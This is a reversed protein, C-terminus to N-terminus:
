LINQLTHLVDGPSKKPNFEYKSSGRISLIGNKSLKRERVQRTAIRRNRKWKAERPYDLRPFSDRYDASSVDGRSYLYVSKGAQSSNWSRIISVLLVRFEEWKSLSTMDQFLDILYIVLLAIAVKQGDLHTFDYDTTLFDKILKICLESEEDGHTRKLFTYFDLDSPRCNAGLSLYKAGIYNQTETPIKQTAKTLNGKIAMRIKNSIYFDVLRIRRMEHYDPLRKQLFVAGSLLRIMRYITTLESQPKTLVDYSVAEPFKLSGFDVTRNRAIIDFFRAIIDDSCELVPAVSDAWAAADKEKRSARIQIRSIVMQGFFAVIAAIIAPGIWPSIWQVITPIANQSLQSGDLGQADSLMPFLLSLIIIIEPIWQKRMPNEKETM